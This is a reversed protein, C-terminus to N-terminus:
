RQLYVDPGMGLLLRETAFKTRLFEALGTVELFMNVSDMQSHPRVLTRVAVFCEASGTVELAVDLSLVQLLEM